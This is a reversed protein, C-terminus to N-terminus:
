MSADASADTKLGNLIACSEWLWKATSLEDEAFLRLAEKTGLDEKLSAQFECIPKIADEPKGVLETFKMLKETDPIAANGLYACFKRGEETTGISFVKVRPSAKELLRMYQYVEHSYPLKGPAGAVDGLVVKPTPVTKSAPLYDVLSSSFFTETTYERIKKTYEEDIPQNPDREPKLLAPGAAARQQQGRAAAAATLVLIAMLSVIAVSYRRRM